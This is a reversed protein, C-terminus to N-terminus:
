EIISQPLMAVIQLQPTGALAGGSSATLNINTADVVGLCWEKTFADANLPTLLVIAPIVGAGEKTVFGHPFQAVIDPAASATLNFIRTNVGPKGTNPNDVLAVTVAM